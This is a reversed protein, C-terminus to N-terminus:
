ATGEHRRKGNSYLQNSHTTPITLADQLSWGRAIRDLVAHYRLKEMECCEVLPRLKGKWTVRVTRQKNRGQLGIRIWCCNEPTYSKNVDIRELSLGQRYGSPIAWAFFNAPIKWPRYVKNGRGGYHKYERRKPWYCRGMMNNWVYYLRTGNFGHIRSKKGLERCTDVALCGCSKVSGKRLRACGYKVYKPEGKGGHDCRCLWVVGRESKSRDGEFVRRIATLRGFRVGKIDIAGSKGNKRAADRQLCGCSKVNGDRLSISPCILRTPRGKGGHDCRCLWVVQNRNNRGARRIATLRVFRDGKLDPDGWAYKKNSRLKSVNYCANRITATRKRLRWIARAM